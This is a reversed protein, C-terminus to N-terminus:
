WLLGSKGPKISLGGEQVLKLYLDREVKSIKKPVYLKVTVIHDGIDQSNLKPVGKNKLRFEKDAQTGPAITLTEKGHLTEIEIDDGLVAQLINLEVTTHIDFGKRKYKTSKEVQLHLYLDGEYGKASGENGRGRLRIVSGDDVGQPVSIKVKEEKALRKNGNCTTCKKEPISGEGQCMDCVRSTMVQGLMTRRVEQIQGSGQCRECSKVKTGPEAGSAKCHECMVVRRIKITKQVGFAAEEFSIKMSLEIDEGQSNRPKQQSQSSGGQNFFTEFIDGINGFDFDQPNFGGGFPNGGGQYGGGGAQGGTAGFQDYMQKKQPDSLTEYANSAEKFNAEAEPNDPNKDPHFKNAKLRYAKKIEDPTASKSVGLIEYLDKNAM